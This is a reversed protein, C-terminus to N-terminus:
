VIKKRDQNEDKITCLFTEKTKLAGIKKIVM